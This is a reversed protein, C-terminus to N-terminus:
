TNEKQLSGQRTNLPLAAPRDCPTSITVASGSQSSAEFALMVELVHQALDGSCRVSRGEEIAVAMDAVGIGRSNEPHPHSYPLVVWDGKRNAKFRPEGGFTNPDPVQLSGRSGYIEIPHHGHGQVDFSMILSVLAGNEFEVVGCQHTDIEVEMVQGKKPESTITRQEWGKKTMGVVRRVPGLLHVLATLYYPGMDLMPGGGKLYYFEPNPHWSEHGPGMMVATGSLPQGIWGDDIWKRCTQLGAGLFTDPACGVKLAKSQALDLVEQGSSTDLGFPKECYAHKGSELIKANVSTHHQPTTLNVVIDIDKRALLAEVSLAEVGYEQAKEQASQSVIDACAVVEVNDFGELGKFYVKSINGCGVIGVGKKGDSM